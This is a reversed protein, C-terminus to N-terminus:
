ESVYILVSYTYENPKKKQNKQLERWLIRGHSLLAGTCNDFTLHITAVTGFVRILWRFLWLHNKFSFGYDNVFDNKSREKINWANRITLNVTFQKALVTEAVIEIVLFPVISAVTFADSM